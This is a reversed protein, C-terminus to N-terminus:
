RRAFSNRLSRSARPTWASTRAKQRASGTLTDVLGSGILNEVSALTDIGAGVTNQAKTASLNVRVGVTADAYSAADIGAGGDLLDNGLGGRLTDDGANGTLENDGVNGILMDHGAGGIAAAIHTTTATTLGTTIASVINASNASLTVVNGRGLSTTLDQYTSELGATVAFIPIINAADLAAKVQALEPYNELIGGNDIIADGNNPTLIGAGTGDAATHFSADTFVVVVRASNNQFGVESTSRLALQMLAEIQSEPLDAGGSAAFGTYTATLSAVTAGMALDTRYVYDGAGGFSGYIKDRFSSAGFAAGGSIGDLAAVIQPVLVRVNAIDDGFSGTLDQLFQVNLAGTVTGGTGLDVIQDEIECDTDGSLDIHSDGSAESADITDHGQFDEIEASGGHIEYVDDGAGGALTDHGSNSILRDDGDGGIEIDDGEGGDLTDDGTDGRL